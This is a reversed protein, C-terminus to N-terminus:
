ARCLARPKARDGQAEALQDPTGYRTRGITFGEVLSENNCEACKFKAKGSTWNNVDVLYSGCQNCFVVPLTVTQDEDSLNWKFM